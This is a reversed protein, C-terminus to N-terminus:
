DGKKWDTSILILIGLWILLTLEIGWVVKFLGHWETQMWWFAVLALGGSGVFTLLDILLQTVKRPVRLKDNRHILEWNLITGQTTQTLQNIKEALEQRLYEGIASVKEDTTIYLWGLIICVWPIVLFAYHQGAHLAYSSVAGITALTVYILHERMVIRAIQEDKLKRYENLHVHLLHDQKLMSKEDDLHELSM